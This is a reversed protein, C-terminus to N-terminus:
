AEARAQLAQISPLTIRARTRRATEFLAHDIERRGKKYTASGLIHRVEPPLPGKEYKAFWKPNEEERIVEPRRWLSGDQMAHPIPHVIVRKGDIVMELWRDPIGPRFFGEGMTVGDAYFIDSWAETVLLGLVPTPNKEKSQPLELPPLLGHVESIFECIQDAKDTTTRKPRPKAIRFKPRVM